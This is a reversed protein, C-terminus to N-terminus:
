RHSCTALGCAAFGPNRIYGSRNLRDELGGDPPGPAASKNGPAGASAGNALTTSESWPSLTLTTAIAREATLREAFQHAISAGLQEARRKQVVVRKRQQELEDVSAFRERAPGGFSSNACVSAAYRAALRLRPDHEVGLRYGCRHPNSHHRRDRATPVAIVFPVVASTSCLKV